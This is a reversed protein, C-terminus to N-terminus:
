VAGDNSAVGIAGGAAEVTHVIPSITIVAFSVFSRSRKCRLPLPDAFDHDQAHRHTVRRHHHLLPAPVAGSTIM